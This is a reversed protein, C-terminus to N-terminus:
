PVIIAKVFSLKYAKYFIGGTILFIFVIVPGLIIGNTVVASVIAIGTIWFLIGGAIYKNRLPEQDFVKRMIELKEQSARHAEEDLVEEEAKKRAVEKINEVVRIAEAAKARKIAKKNQERLDKEEKKKREKEALKCREEKLTKMQKM